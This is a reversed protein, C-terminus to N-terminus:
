KKEVLNYRWNSTQGSQTEIIKIFHEIQKDFFIAMLVWLSAFFEVGGRLFFANM